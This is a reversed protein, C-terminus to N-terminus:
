VVRGVRAMTVANQAMLTVALELWILTVTEPVGSRHAILAIGARVGLTLPWLLAVLVGGRRLVTGDAEVWVDTVFGRALGFALTLALAEFFLAVSAGGLGSLGGLGSDQTGALRGVRLAIAFLATPFIFTRRFTM